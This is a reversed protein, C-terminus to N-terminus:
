PPWIRTAADVAATTDRADLQDIQALMPQAVQRADLVQELHAGLPQPDLERRQPRQIRHRPVQRHLRGTEHAALDLHLLQALQHPGVTQHGQGPHAPHALGAQRDLDRGLQRRTRQHPTAPPTPGPRRDRRAHGVRHGGHQPDGGLGPQRHGCLMAWASDPRRSNTTNSLQSCTSSAAASTTSAIRARVVVTFTIAM